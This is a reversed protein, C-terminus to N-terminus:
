QQGYLVKRLYAIEITAAKVKREFQKKVVASSASSAQLCVLSAQYVRCFDCQNRITKAGQRIGGDTVAGM